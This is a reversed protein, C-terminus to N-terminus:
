PQKEKCKGSPGRDPPTSRATLVAVRKALRRNTRTELVDLVCNLILALPLVLSVFFCAVVGLVVLWTPAQQAVHGLFTSVGLLGILHPSEEGEVIRYLFRRILHDAAEDRWALARIQDMLADNRWVWSKHPDYVVLSPLSAKGKGKDQSVQIAPRLWRRLWKEAVDAKGFIFRGQLVTDNAAAYLSQSLATTRVTPTSKEKRSDYALLALSRNRDRLACSLMENLNVMMPFRNIHVWSSLEDVALIGDYLLYGHDKFLAVRPSRRQRTFEQLLDSSRCVAFYLLPYGAGHRFCEVFVDQAEAAPVDGPDAAGAPSTQASTSTPLLLVVRVEGSDVGSFTLLQERRSVQQIYLQPRLLKQLFLKVGSLHGRPSPMETWTLNPSMRWLFSPYIRVDHRHCLGAERHCDVMGMRLQFLDLYDHQASMNALPELLQLCPPCSPRFFLVLWRGRATLNDFDSAHLNRVAKMDQGRSSCGILLLWLLWQVGSRM